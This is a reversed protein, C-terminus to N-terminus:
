INEVLTIDCYKIFRTLLVDPLKSMLSYKEKPMRVSIFDIKWGNDSLNTFRNAFYECIKRLRKIKGNDMHDEPTPFNTGAFVSSKVEMFSLENDPSKSIIDIEGWPRRFNKDIVKYKRQKIYLFAIREGLKGISSTKM